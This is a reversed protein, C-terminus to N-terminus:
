NFLDTNVFDPRVYSWLDVAVRQEIWRYPLWAYGNDGWERGWSNRVLLAGEHPGVMREDDYGVALMAHGGLMEDGPDPFPVEDGSEGVRPMSTYVPLGFVIPLRGALCKRVNLLVDRGTASAPDLRFYRMTRFPEAFSYCFAPPTEDIHSPDYPWHMEPPAGFRTLAKLTNRLGAGSDSAGRTLDRAGRYLFRRSLESRRGFARRDFYEALGVVAHATASDARQQDEVRSCWKRLDANVPLVSGSSSKFATSIRLIGQVEHDEFAYDRLDPIDRRWGLGGLNAESM